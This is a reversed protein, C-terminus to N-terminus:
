DTDLATRILDLISEVASMTIGTPFRLLGHVSEPYVRLVAENGAARWRAATLLSDDLLPDLMGVTFLAPPMHHLDSFLPSVEPSQREEETTGPLFMDAFWAMIPTSIILNRDGWSRASPTMSVDFVGFVLNAAAFADIVGHPDRLRLLTLASLHAGASEGGIILRSSGFEEQAHEILWQAAAECDDPGAPFPHEPALRYEVSVVATNASDAVTTLLLDQQDAAGLAWGGGHLHLYVGDVRDPVVIRLEVPGEPGPISRVVARDSRMIPGVWSKGQERERRTTTVDVTHVSPHAALLEELAVNQKHARKMMESPVQVLFDTMVAVTTRWPDAPTECEERRRRHGLAATVSREAAHARGAGGSSNMMVRM